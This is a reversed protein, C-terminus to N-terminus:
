PFVFIAFPSAWLGFIATVFWGGLFFSTAMLACFSALGVSWAMFEDLRAASRGFAKRSLWHLPSLWKIFASPDAFATVSLFMLIASISLVCFVLIHSAWEGMSIM